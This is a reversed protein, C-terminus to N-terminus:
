KNSVIQELLVNCIYDPTNMGNIIQIGEINKQCEGHKKYENVGVIEFSADSKARDSRGKRRKICEESPLDLYFKQDILDNLREYRFLLFGELILHDANKIRLNEFKEKLAM